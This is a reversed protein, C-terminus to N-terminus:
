HLPSMYYIYTILAIKLRLNNGLFGATFGSVATKKGLFGSVAPKGFLSSQGWGLGLGFAM